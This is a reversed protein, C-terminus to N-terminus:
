TVRTRRHPRRDDSLSGMLSVTSPGYVTKFTKPTGPTFFEHIVCSELFSLVSSNLFM